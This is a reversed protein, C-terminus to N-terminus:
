LWDIEVLGCRSPDPSQRVLVRVEVLGPTVSVRAIFLGSLATGLHSFLPVALVTGATGAAGAVLIEASNLQQVNYM